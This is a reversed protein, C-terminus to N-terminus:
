DKTKALQWLCQCVNEAKNTFLYEVGRSLERYLSHKSNIFGVGALQNAEKLAKIKKNTLLAYHGLVGGYGESLSLRCYQGLNTAEAVLLLSERPFTGHNNFLSAELTILHFDQGPILENLTQTLEDWCDFPAKLEIFLHMKGGFASVVEKLSPINPELARLESFSLNGIEAEHGWLRTLTPDHNVVLVKDVTAHVDLEIGWCGVDQALHFAKMTNEICKKNDHAGRHAIIHARQSDLNNPIPRPILAVLGDVLQQALTLLFDM